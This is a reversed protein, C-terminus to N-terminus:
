YLAFGNLIYKICRNHIVYGNIVAHKYPSFPTKKQLLHLLFDTGIKEVPLIFHTHALMHEHMNTLTNMSTFVVSPSREEKTTAAQYLALRQKLPLTDAEGDTHGERSPSVGASGAASICVSVCEPQLTRMM